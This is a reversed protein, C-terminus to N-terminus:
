TERPSHGSSSTSPAERPGPRIPDRLSCERQPRKKIAALSRLWRARKASPIGRKTTRTTPAKAQLASMPAFSGVSRPESAEVAGGHTRLESQVVVPCTQMKRTQLGGHWVSASQLSPERQKCVGSAVAQTALRTAVHSAVCVHGVPDVQWAPAHRLAHPPDWRHRLWCSHWAPTQTPVSGVCSGPRAATTESAEDSWDRPSPLGTPASADSSASPVDALPPTTSEVTSPEGVGSALEGDASTATVSLGHPLVLVSGCLQPEHPCSQM